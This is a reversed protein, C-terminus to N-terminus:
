NGQLQDAPLLHNMTKMLGQMKERMQQMRQPGDKEGGGPGGVVPGVVRAVGVVPRVV